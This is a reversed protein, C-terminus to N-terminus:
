DPRAANGWPAVTFELAESAHRGTPVDRVELHLTYTGPPLNPMQLRYHQYYDHQPTLTDDPKDFDQPGWLREGSRNRIELRSRLHTRYDGKDSRHPRSAVNRLELYVDAMEGPMFSPNVGLAEIKGFGRIMRCFCAKDMRLAAKPRLHNLVFQLGEVYQAMERPETEGLKGEAAQVTLPLLTMLVQRSTDDLRNLEIAADDPRKELYCRIVGLLWPEEVIEKPLDAARSPAQEHDWRSSVLEPAAATSAQPESTAGYPIGGVSVTGWTRLSAVSEASAGDTEPRAAVTDVEPRYAAATVLEPERNPRTSPSLRRPIPRPTQVAWPTAPGGASLCGPLLAGILGVTWRLRYRFKM